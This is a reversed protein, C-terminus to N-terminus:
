YGTRVSRPACACSVITPLLVFLSLLRTRLEELCSITNMVVNKTVADNELAFHFAAGLKYLYLELPLM